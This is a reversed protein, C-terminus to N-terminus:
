FCTPKQLVYELIKKEYNEVTLRTKFFSERPQLFLFLLRYFSAIHDITIMLSDFEIDFIKRQTHRLGDTECKRKVPFKKREKNAAGRFHNEKNVSKM